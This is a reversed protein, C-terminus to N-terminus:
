VHTYAHVHVRCILSSLDQMFPWKQLNAATALILPSEMKLQSSSAGVYIHIHMTQICTYMYMCEMCVNWVYMVYM